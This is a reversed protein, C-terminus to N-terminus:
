KRTNSHNRGIPIAIPVSCKWRLGHQMQFCRPRIHGLIGCYHCIIKLHIPVKNDTKIMVTKTSYEGTEGQKFRKVFVVPSIMTEKGKDEIGLGSRGPDRRSSALIKDLKSSETNFKKLKLKTEALEKKTNILNGLEKTLLSEKAEVQKIM